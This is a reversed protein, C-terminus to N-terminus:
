GTELMCSFPFTSFHFKDCVRKHMHDDVHRKMTNYLVLNKLPMPSAAHPTHREIERTEEACCEVEKVRM